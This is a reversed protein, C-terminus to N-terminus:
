GIHSLPQPDIERYQKLLGRPGGPRNTLDCFQRWDLDRLQELSYTDDRHSRTGNDEHQFKGYYVVQNPDTINESDPGFPHPDLLYKDVNEKSFPINYAIVLHIWKM